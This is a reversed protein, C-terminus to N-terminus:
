TTGVVRRAGVGLVYRTGVRHIFNTKPIKRRGIQAIKVWVNKVANARAVTVCCRQVASGNQNKENPAIRQNIANM